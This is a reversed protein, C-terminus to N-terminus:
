FLNQVDEGGTSSEIKITKSLLYWNTRACKKYDVGIYGINQVIKWINRKIKSDIDHIKYINNINGIIIILKGMLRNNECM